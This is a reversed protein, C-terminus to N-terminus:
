TKGLPLQRTVTLRDKLGMMWNVVGISAEDYPVLEWDQHGDYEFPYLLLRKKSTLQPTRALANALQLLVYLVTVFVLLTHCTM